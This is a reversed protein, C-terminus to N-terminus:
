RGRTLFTRLHLASHGLRAGAGLPQRSRAHHRHHAAALVKKKRALVGLIRSSFECMAGLVTKPPDKRGTRSAYPRGLLEAAITRIDAKASRARHAPLRSWRPGDGRPLDSRPRASERGQAVCSGRVGVCHETPAPGNPACDHGLRVACVGWPGPGCASEGELVDLQELRRVLHCIDL